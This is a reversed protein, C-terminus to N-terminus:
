GVEAEVAVGLSEFQQSAEARTDVADPRGAADLPMACAHFARAEDPRAEIEDLLAIARECDAFAADWDPDPMSSVMIGRHLRAAAAGSRSRGAVAQDTM